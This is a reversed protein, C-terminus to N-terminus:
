RETAELVRGSFTFGAIGLMLVVLVVLTTVNSLLATDVAYVVVFELVGAVALVASVTRYPAIKRPTNAGQIGLVAYGLCLVASVYFLIAIILHWTANDLGLLSPDSTGSSMLAVGAFICIAAALVSIFSLIKVTKRDSSM